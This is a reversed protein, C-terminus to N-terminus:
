SLDDFIDCFFDFHRRVANAHHQHLSAYYRKILHSVARATGGPFIVIRFGLEELKAPRLIPTRGGELMNALLPVDAARDRLPPLDIPFINLRYYLDERLRASAM